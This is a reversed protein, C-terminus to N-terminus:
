YSLEFVGYMNNHTGIIYIKEITRNIRVDEIADISIINNTIYYGPNFVSVTNKSALLLVGHSDFERVLSIPESTRNLLSTDGSEYVSWLEWPSWLIWEKKNVNYYYNHSAISNEQFEQNKQPRKIISISQQKKTIIREKNISIIATVPEQSYLTNEKATNKRKTIYSNEKNYEWITQTKDVYWVPEAQLAIRTFINKSFYYLDNESRIFLTPIKQAEEWQFEQLILPEPSLNRTNPDEASITTIHSKRDKEYILLHDNHPSWTVVTQPTTPISLRVDEKKVISYLLFIIANDKKRKIKKIVYEGSPSFSLASIQATNKTINIPTSKKILFIDKIYTTQNSKVLVDHQWTHYGDKHISVAYTRNPALNSLRIPPKQTIKKNNIFVTIDKTETDISISGRSLIRNVSFDYRYGATYLVTIPSIICFSLILFAMITRRATHSLPYPPYKMITAFYVRKM